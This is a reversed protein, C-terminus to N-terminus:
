LWGAVASPPPFNFTYGATRGQTKAPLPTEAVGWRNHGPAGRAAVTCPGLSLTQHVAYLLRCVGGVAGLLWSPRVGEIGSPVPASLLTLTDIAVYEFFARVVADWQTGFGRLLVVAFLSLVLMAAFHWLRWDVGFVM